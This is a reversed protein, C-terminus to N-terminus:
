CTRKNLFQGVRLLLTFTMILIPYYFVQVLLSAIGSSSVFHALLSLLQSTLLLIIAILILLPRSVETQEKHGTVVLLSVAILVLLWALFIPHSWLYVFLAACLTMSFWVKHSCLLQNINVEPQSYFRVIHWTVLLGLVGGVLMDTIFVRGLYFQAFGLGLISFAGLITTSNIQVQDKELLWLVVLSTWVAISLNPFGFGYHAVKLVDPAYAYPGPLSFGQQAVLCLLSTTAVSFFAKYCFVKGNKWYLWPFLAIGLLPSALSAILVWISDFGSKVSHPWAASWYQVSRMWGLELQHFSPAAKILEDVTRTSQHTAKTFFEGIFSWQEPYRYQSASIRSPHILMADSVEVGYDPAFWLPLVEGGLANVYRFKVIESDSVCDFVIATPTEGLREGVTVVLGTEEWTERQAAQEPTEGKEITGGPLSLKQTIIEHTIVMKDNARILCLAGRPAESAFAESTYTFTVLFFIVSLLSWSWDMQYCKNEKQSM